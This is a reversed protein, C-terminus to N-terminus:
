SEKGYGEEPRKLQLLGRLGSPSMFERDHTDAIKKIRSLLEYNTALKTRQRDFWINDELGVRVGAGAVIAISNVKRQFDGVGGFSFLSNDPLERKMLGMSLLNAQACAVNGLILNFYFPPEILEKRQLYKAYNIMGLDFAELEPKIEKKKMKTALKKITEPSNISAQKNFNLSSLTLSATDPKAEGQLDLVASRKEFDQFTRGSCTVGIVLDKNEERIAPIIEEYPEPRWTPKGNKDRAHLHVMTIGLESCKLVQDIIEGPQTPVNPTMDKTPIMGTPTFNVIIEENEKM